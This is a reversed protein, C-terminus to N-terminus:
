VDLEGLLEPLWEEISVDQPLTQSSQLNLLGGILSHFALKGKNCTGWDNYTVRRSRGGAGSPKPLPSM